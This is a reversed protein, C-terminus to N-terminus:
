LSSLQHLSVMACPSFKKLRVSGHTIHSELNLNFVAPKKNRAYALQRKNLKTTQQRNKTTRISETLTM